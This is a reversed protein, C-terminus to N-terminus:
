KVRWSELRTEKCKTGMVRDWCDLERRWAVGEEFLFSVRLGEREM